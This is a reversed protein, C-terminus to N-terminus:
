LEGDLNDGFLLAEAAKYQEALSKLLEYQEMKEEDMDIVHLHRELMKEVREMRDALKRIEYNTNDVTGYGDYYTDRKKPMGLPTTGGSGYGNWGTGSTNTPNPEFDGIWSNNTKTMEELEKLMKQNQRIMFKDHDTMPITKNKYEKMM